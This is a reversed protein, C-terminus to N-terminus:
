EKVLPNLKPRNVISKRLGMEEVIAQMQAVRANRAQRDMGNADRFTMPDVGEKWQIGFWEKHRGLAAEPFLTCGSINTVEDIYDHNRRLFAVVQDFDEQTEGPFGVIINVNTCIGSEKTMRVVKEADSPSFDKNMGKLVRPSAHEMGYIITHCGAKHMKALLEPNM